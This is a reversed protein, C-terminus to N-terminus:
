NDDFLFEFGAYAALHLTDGHDLSEFYQHKLRTNAAVHKKLTMNLDSAAKEMLPGEKGVAIFVSKGKLDLTTEHELISANDWWLSPSVILYNDFMEPHKFLVETALLGGLSQGILTNQGTTRYRNNIMPQLEESIFNIFAASGGSTPFDKKDAEIQTPYTMDHKRDKNAIGVVISEKLMNIWSFSGFQVLGVVHIFDEDASGDLLYIVPYHKEPKQQYSQPLYINISRQQKLVDSQWTLTEGIVFPQTTPKKPTVEAFCFSAFLVSLSVLPTLKKFM